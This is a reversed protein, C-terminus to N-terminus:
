PSAMAGDGAGMAATAIVLGDVPSGRIGGPPSLHFAYSSHHLANRPPPKEFTKQFAGRINPFIGM